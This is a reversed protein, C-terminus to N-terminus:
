CAVLRALIPIAAGPQAREVLRVAAFFWHTPPKPGLGDCFAELESETIRKGVTRGLVEAFEALTAGSLRVLEAFATAAEPRCDGIWKRATAPSFASEWAEFGCPLTM